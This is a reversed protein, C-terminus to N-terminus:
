NAGWAIANNTANCNTRADNPTFPPNLTANNVVISTWGTSGAVATTCVDDPVGNYTVSFGNAGIATGATVSVAGGWANTITGAARNVQLTGPVANANILNVDLAGTGYNNAQSMYLKRVSTRLSTVEEILRNSEAGGFASILLSVAGLIVIAAIGLYAIGELLSAGRQRFAANIARSGTFASKKM